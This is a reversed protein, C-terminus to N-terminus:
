QRIMAQATHADHRPGHSDHDPHFDPKQDFDVRIITGTFRANTDYEDTVRAGKDWGIDFTEDVSYGVTCTRAIEGEAIKADGVFLRGIGGAGMPEDGTKEFEYRLLHRGAPLADSARIYTYEPGPYCYVFTPVSDKLYIAWGSSGSGMVAIPGHAGDDPVDIEAGAAWSRNLTQPASFPQIRVAGEYFTLLEREAYLGERGLARSYFRDDLPLVQYKGAEAWWLQILDLARKVVPDDLNARDRDKMLDNSESPDETLDYLEWHDEDFGWAAKNEWPKRGHYTAIKWGDHVLGRNGMMEYYQTVHTTPADADDFSYNMAYGEVPEQQVSNVHAPADIGIAELVTPVMDTVHHFQHRLEGKAKIGDPWHVVLPNRVGGFHTYQKCLQFPTNGAMAWGVPYHNYSGPQGLHDIRDLNQEVTEGGGITVSQENFLGELGGEGSSGNDGVYVFILTNDLQGTQELSDILRGIQADTHEMYGAYLEAMRAFLRRNEEPLEDWGQVGELMPTMQTHEPLIGMEKQRVLTKERYADWGEDFMGKYRDAWEPWIHHPAHMAGFALWAFWPREPALSRHLSTWSISRDVLDESLHYGDEPQAPPDVPERDLFLKPQWQDSDGGLFGYFRDFGFVSGVPWRDYPGSLSTEESPTNHWKGLCFSTYGHQHLMAPLGAKNQPQRANYGPYGTAMETIAAMGVSHHNRGTILAARTPSCLATTTCNTYRLGNDALRQINPTRIAGGFPEIWGFGIDDIIVALVNPAGEPAAPPVPFAPESDEWTRGVEGPFREGERYTKM